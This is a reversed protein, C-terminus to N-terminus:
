GLGLLSESLDKPNLFILELDSLYSADEFISKYVYLLTDNLANREMESSCLISTSFYFHGMDGDSYDSNKEDEIYWSYKHSSVFDALHMQYKMTSSVIAFPM